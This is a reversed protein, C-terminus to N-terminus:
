RYEDLIRYIYVYEEVGVEKILKRFNEIVNTTGHWVSRQLLTFGAEKLLRRLMARVNRMPEPIDFVLLNAQGEPLRVKEDIIQRKLAHVRGKSTLRYEIKEGKKRLEIFRRKALYRVERMRRAEMKWAVGDLSYTRHPLAEGLESAVNFLSVLTDSCKSM